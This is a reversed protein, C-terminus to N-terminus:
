IDGFRATAASVPQFPFGTEAWISLLYAEEAPYAHNQPREGEVWKQGVFDFHKVVRAPNGVVLSFPAVDGRVVSHAGIICGHGIKASGMVTAGFGFFCNVGVYIQGDATTSTGAYHFAPNDYIHSSGIFACRSTTLIYERLIISHGVSFFNDCGIYTNDGISLSISSGSRHNVNLWTRAGLVVNRGLAIQRWGIVKVTSDISAHPWVRLRWRLAM